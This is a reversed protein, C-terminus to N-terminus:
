GRCSASKSIASLRGVSRSRLLTPNLIAELVHSLPFHGIDHLLAAHKLDLALTQSLSQPVLGHAIRSPQAASANISAIYKSVVALVGLSHEMRTHSAAPYVLFTFGTQRIYRLRQLIPSNLLVVTTPDLEIMEWIVDKVVKSVRFGSKEIEDKSLNRAALM